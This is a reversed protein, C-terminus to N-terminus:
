LNDPLTSLVLTECNSPLRFVLSMYYKDTFLVVTTFSVSLRIISILFIVCSIHDILINM